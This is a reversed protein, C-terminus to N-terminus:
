VESKRDRKFDRVNLVISLVAVTVLTGIGLTDAWFASLEIGTVERVLLQIYSPPDHYGLRSRV